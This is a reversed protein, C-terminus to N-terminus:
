DPLVRFAITRDQRVALGIPQFRAPQSALLARARSKEGVVVWRASAEAVKALFADDGDYHVYVLRNDMAHDFLAGIFSTDQTFVVVGGDALEKEKARATDAPMQFAAFNM